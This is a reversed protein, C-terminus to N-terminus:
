LRLLQLEEIAPISRLAELVPPGPEPSLTLYGHAAAGADSAPALELRQINIQYRGLISGIQGLVGPQDKHRTVLLVGKPVLDLRLGDVATIRPERGFVTGAVTHAKGGAKETARVSLEGGRFDPREERSELVLIGRERALAPANVFNVSKDHSHRLVGVLFALKLHEAHRAIEGGVTLEVKRIQGQTRQALYSGLKEALLLYPGMEGMAEAPLTPANVANEAVGNKLFNAIQEAIDLAVRLQAEESSAGLHPTVIVDDRALLPHDKSPPEEVLVDFAAGALKGTTLADLVAEEDVVGGRAAQILRAGPKVRAFQEWSLLNKTSDNLPVHVSLFDARTLLADLELLEVGAMPSAMGEGALYPDYAVVKMGIGRGREAVLKGIRGLGIVGLTKGFVETGVLGKAKWKGSRVLRDARPIHRALALLLAIALEATTTANGRPTNMVVVGRETAAELDVNDVGIGARGVVRLADAAELVRRTVKTASRVVLADVGRIAQCLEDEKMGTKVEPEFGARRFVEIAAPDLEDSILIRPPRPDSM